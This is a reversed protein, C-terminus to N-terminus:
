FSEKYTTVWTANEMFQLLRFANDGFCFDTMRLIGFKALIGSQSKSPIYPISDNASWGAPPRTRSLLPYEKYRLRWLNGLTEEPNKIKHKKLLDEKKPNAKSRQIGRIQAFFTHRTVIRINKEGSPLIHVIGFHNTGGGASPMLNFGFYYGDGSENGGFTSNQSFSILGSIIFFVILLFKKM